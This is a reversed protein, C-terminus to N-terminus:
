RYGRFFGLTRQQVLRRIEEDTVAVDPCRSGQIAARADRLSILNKYSNLNVFLEEPHVAMVALSRPNVWNFRDRSSFDIDATGDGDHRMQFAEVVLMDKNIMPHHERMISNTTSLIKVKVFGAQTRREDELSRLRHAVAPLYFSANDRSTMAWGILQRREKRLAEKARHVAKRRLQVNVRNFKSAHHDLARAAQRVEIPVNPTNNVARILEEYQEVAVTVLLPDKNREM